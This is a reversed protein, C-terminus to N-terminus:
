QPLSLARKVPLGILFEPAALELSGCQLHPSVDLLVGRDSHLGKLM